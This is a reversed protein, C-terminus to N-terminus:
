NLKDLFERVEISLPTAGGNDEYLDIMVGLYAVLEDHHNVAKVIFDAGHPDYVTAIPAGEIAGNPTGDAKRITDNGDADECEDVVWPTPTHKSV